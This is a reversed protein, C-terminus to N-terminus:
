RTRSIYSPWRGTGDKFDSGNFRLLRLAKWCFDVLELSGMAFYTAKTAIKGHGLCVVVLCCCYCCCCMCCSIWAGKCVKRYPVYMKLEEHDEAKELLLRFGPSSTPSDAFDTMQDKPVSEQFHVFPSGWGGFFSAMEFSFKMHVLKQKEPSMNTKLPTALRSQKPYWHTFLPIRNSFM